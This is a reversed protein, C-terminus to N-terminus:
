GMGSTGNPVVTSKHVVLSTSGGMHNAEAGRKVKGGLGPVKM